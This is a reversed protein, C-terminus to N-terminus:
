NLTFRVPITLWVPVPKGKSMAPKFEWQRVAAAAAEDLLPVSQVIRTDDVRGETGVLAKVLILGQVHGSRAEDPYEPPVKRIAVPREDIAINQADPGAVELLTDARPPSPQAVPAPTGRRAGGTSSCGVTVLGAVLALGLVIPRM